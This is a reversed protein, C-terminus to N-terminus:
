PARCGSASESQPTGPRFWIHMVLSMTAVRRQRLGSDALMELHQAFGPQDSAFDFARGGAVAEIRLTDEPEFLLDAVPQSFGAIAQAGIFFRM